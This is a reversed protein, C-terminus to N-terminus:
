ERVVLELPRRLIELMVEEAEELVQHELIETVQEVVVPDVQVLLGV